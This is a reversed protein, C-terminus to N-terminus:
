LLTGNCFINSKYNSGWEEKNFSCPTPGELFQTVQPLNGIKKSSLPSLGSFPTSASIPPQWKKILKLEIM